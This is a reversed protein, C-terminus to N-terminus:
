NTLHEIKSFCNQEIEVIQAPRLAENQGGAPWPQGCCSWPNLLAAHGGGGVVKGLWGLRGGPNAEHLRTPHGAAKHVPPMYTSVCLNLKIPLQTAKAPEDSKEISLSALRCVGVYTHMCM